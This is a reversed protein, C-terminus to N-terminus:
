IARSCVANGFDRELQLIDQRDASERGSVSKKLVIQGSSVSPVGKRALLYESITGNRCAFLCLGKPDVLRVLHKGCPCAEACSQPIANSTPM